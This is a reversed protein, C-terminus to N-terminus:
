VRGVVEASFSREWGLGFQCVQSVRLQKWNGARSRCRNSSRVGTAVRECQVATVGQVNNAFRYSYM